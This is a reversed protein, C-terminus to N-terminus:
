LFRFSELIAPLEGKKALDDPSKLDPAHSTGMMLLAVGKSGDTTPLLIIRLFLDADGAKARFLGEYADYQGVKTKGESVKRFDTFQSAFQNQLQEILQPYLLENGENNGATDFYGVNLNEWTNGGVNREISVFNVSGAAQPKVVWTGPYRMEFDAYYEALPGTRGELTNRYVVLDKAESEALEDAFYFASSLLVAGILLSLCGCGALIFPTKRTQESM